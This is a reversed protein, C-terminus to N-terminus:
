KRWIKKGEKLKKLIAEPSNTSEGCKCRKENPLFVHWNISCKFLDVNKGKKNLM